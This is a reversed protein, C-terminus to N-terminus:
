AKRELIQKLGKYGNIDPINIIPCRSNLSCLLFLSFILLAGTGTNDIFMSFLYLVGESFCRSTIQTNFLCTSFNERLPQNGKNEFDEKNRQHLQTEM